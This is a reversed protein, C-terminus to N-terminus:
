RAQAEDLSQDTITMIQQLIDGIDQKRGDGDTGGTGEQMHQPLGPHGAMGVGTHSHMLRPQEDMEEEEEEEGRKDLERHYERQQFGAFICLLFFLLSPPLFYFYFFDRYSRRVGPNKRAPVTLPAWSFLPNRLRFRLFSGEQERATEREREWSTPTSHSIQDSSSSGESSYSIRLLSLCSSEVVLCARKRTIDRLSGFGGRGALNGGLFHSHSVRLTPKNWESWGRAKTM